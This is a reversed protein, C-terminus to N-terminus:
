IYAFDAEGNFDKRGEGLISSFVIERCSAKECEIFNFEIVRIIGINQERWKTRLGAM